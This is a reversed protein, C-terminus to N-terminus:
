HLQKGELASGEVDVDPLLRDLWKPMWWAAGGLISMVSPVLLLRVIFADFLVGVALGFGMPRIMALHSFAFGGFVSVMIIAAAVVVSRSLRIGYNISENATKGHTFAERIGSTLFLQYDMALGFLIGIMITPLFSLIPGPDHVGFVEGLWGWQFVATISGFVAFVTLLFGASALIPVLISRFVVMMLLMSLALVTGLYLPLADALKKSVDINTAALGTVGLSSDFQTKFQQELDRIEYVLKETEESAPGTTPLIQYIFTKGDDSVGGPLVSDVNKLEFLIKAMGAQLKLEQYSSLAEPIEAVAIVAGNAGAGFAQTTLKYARYQSSDVPESSGDPLGLRMSSSPLAAVVLVAISALVVLWPARTVLLQKAAKKPKEIATATEGALLLARSKKSLVRMDLLGLVAPTFTIAVLVAVVIGLAGMTGMIGLFGIGTLNLAVLAIVVTLGAFVVANGSTGSAMGISERVPMGAKLQRIHRNLIFLSYDIGVALGLMVGLVPTTSNMEFVTSLALTATAAVGVGLIAALVPLGAAILTGLMVFLVVAAIVLGVVEGIGLLDSVDSTFEKSFEVQVGEIPTSEITKMVEDVTNKSVQNIPLDFQIIALATSKDRSVTGFNASVALLENGYKLKQANQEITQLGSDLKKQQKALEIKQKELEAFGASIQARNALLPALVAEPANASQAQAIGAELEASKDTLEKFAADIKLKGANLAVQGRDIEDRAADLEKVGNAADSRQKTLEANAEFPNVATDVGAVLAADKLVQAIQSEHKASFKSGDAVHFVVQASGGSASPFSEKLQDIVKQSAIGEISLNESLKTGGILMAGLSIGLVMIWSIIVLWARKASGFGLRYLLKAM